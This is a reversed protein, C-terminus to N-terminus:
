NTSPHSTADVIRVGTIDAWRLETRHRGRLRAVGHEYLTFREARHRLAAISLTLGIGLGVVCLFLLALASIGGAVRLWEWGIPGAVGGVLFSILAVRVREHNDTAFEGIEAGLETM